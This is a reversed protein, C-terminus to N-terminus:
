RKPEPRKELDALVINLNGRIQEILKGFEYLFISPQRALMHKEAKSVSDMMTGVVAFLSETDHSAQQKRGAFIEDM